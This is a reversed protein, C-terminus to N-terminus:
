RARQPRAAEAPSLIWVRTVHGQADVVYKVPSLGPLSVPLIIRNEADRIQAAAALQMTDGDIEVLSERLHRMAGRRADEPITRLQALAPLSVCLVAVM